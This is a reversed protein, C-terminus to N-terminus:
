IDDQRQGVKQDTNGHREKSGAKSFISACKKRFNKVHGKLIWIKLKPDFNSFFREM